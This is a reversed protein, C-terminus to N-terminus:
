VVVIDTWDRGTTAKFTLFLFHDCMPGGYIKVNNIGCRIMAWLFYPLTKEIVTKRYKTVFGDDEISGIV